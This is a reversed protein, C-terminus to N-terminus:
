RGWLLAIYYAAALVPVLPVVAARGDRSADYYTGKRDYIMFHFFYCIREILLHKKVMHVFAFLAALPAFVLLTQGWLKMGYMGSIVSLLKIDGAGMGRICYLPLLAIIGMVICLVGAGMGFIGQTYFRCVMVSLWGALILDNSIRYEQLDSVSSLLLLITMAACKIM